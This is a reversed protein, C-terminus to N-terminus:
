KEKAFRNEKRTTAFEKFIWHRITTVVKDICIEAFGVTQMPM